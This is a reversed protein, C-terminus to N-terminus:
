ENECSLTARAVASIVLEGNTFTERKLIVRSFLTGNHDGRATRVRTAHMQATASVISPSMLLLRLMTREEM